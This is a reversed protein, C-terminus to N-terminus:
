PLCDSYEAMTCLWAVLGQWRGEAPTGGKEQGALSRGNPAQLSAFGSFEVQNEAKFIDRKKM